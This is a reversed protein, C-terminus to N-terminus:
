VEFAYLHSLFNGFVLYFFHAFSTGFYAGDVDLFAFTLSLAIIKKIPADRSEARHSRPSYVENCKACFVKVPAKDPTDYLGIPLM